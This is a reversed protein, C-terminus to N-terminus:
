LPRGTMHCGVGGNNVVFQCHCTFSSQGIDALGESHVATSGLDAKSGSFEMGKHENMTELANEATVNDLQDRIYRLFGTLYTSLAGQRPKDGRVLM